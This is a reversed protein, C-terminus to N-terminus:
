AQATEKAKTAFNLMDSILRAALYSTTGGVDDYPPAVETMVMGILESRKAIAEFMDVMEDYVFGGFIPSGTAPACAADMADIDFAIVIKKSPAFADLIHEIGMARTKKVSYIQDGHALADAFDSPGSSGAGRIGIHLMRGVHPLQSANRMPSGNFYPQGCLPSTWDLHSDFHIVDFPGAAELGQFVPYDVSCDGGLVVPVAGREVLIRVAQKLNANSASLDGPVYDVDGCDEVKWLNADMYFQDREYDYSGGPKYSFRTSAVRIGRPGMRCGTRGQIALDFPAGLIAIDANTQRIDLCLPSKAFTAIGTPAMNLPKQTSFNNM